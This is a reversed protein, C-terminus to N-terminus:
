GTAKDDKVKDGEENKSKIEQINNNIKKDSQTEKKINVENLTKESDIKSDGEKSSRVELNLNCNINNFTM